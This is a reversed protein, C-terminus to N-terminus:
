IKSTSVIEHWLQETVYVTDSVQQVIYMCSLEANFLGGATQM